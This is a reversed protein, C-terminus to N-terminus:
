NGRRDEIRVAVPIGRVRGPAWPCGSLGARAAKAREPSPTSVIEISPENVKGNASLIYKIIVPGQALLGAPPPETTVADQPSAAGCHPMTPREELRPDALDFVSDAAPLSDDLPMGTTDALPVLGIDTVSMAGPTFSLHATLRVGNPSAHGGGLAFRCSPLQRVLASHLGAATGGAVTRIAIMASDPQGKPSVNFTATGGSLLIGIPVRPASCKKLSPLSDGPLVVFLVLALSLVAPEQIRPTSALGSIIIVSAAHRM